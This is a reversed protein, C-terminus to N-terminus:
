NAKIKAIEEPCLYLLLAESLVQILKKSPKTSERYHNIFFPLLKIFYKISVNTDEKTVRVM